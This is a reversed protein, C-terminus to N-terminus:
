PAVSASLTQKETKNLYTKLRDIHAASGIFIATRQHLKNPQLELIDQQGDTALGGAKKIIFTLPNCEYLLRLKGQPYLKTAPYMFIGGKLLTRHVDAVMSGIYRFEMGIEVCNNIYKQVPPAFEAYKAYNVSYTRGEPMKMDKHSLCFECIANDLTFGNLSGNKTAFVLMTSTGFLAYGAAVQKYGKQLFDREQCDQGAPTERQYIAFITGISVNVDINSSGDLPDFLVVYKAKNNDSITVFDANEESAIACCHGSNKLQEQMIQDAIIDLKQVIEGSANQKGHEGFINLLGAKNIKNSIMKAATAIDLILGSLEGTSSYEKQQAAIFKELTIIPM